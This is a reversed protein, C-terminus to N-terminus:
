RASGAHQTDIPFAEYITSFPSTYLIKQFSIERFVLDKGHDVSISINQDFCLDGKGTVRLNDGNTESIARKVRLDDQRQMEKELMRQMMRDEEDKEEQQRKIAIEAEERAVTNAKAEHAAREEELSPISLGQAQADVADRMVREVENAIELVMVMGHQLLEKPKWVLVDNMKDLTKNLVNDCGKVSLLPVTKPYTATLTVYLCAKAEITEPASVESSVRLRIMFSKEMKKSWAGKSELHKFDDMFISQLAEIEDNQAEEYQSMTTATSVARGKAPQVARMDDADKKPTGHDLRPPKPM